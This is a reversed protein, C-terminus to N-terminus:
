AFLPASLNGLNACNPAPGDELPERSAPPPNQGRRRGSPRQRGEARRQGASRRLFYYRPFCGLTGALSASKHNLRYTWSKRSPSAPRPSEERKKQFAERVGSKRGPLPIAPANTCRYSTWADHNREQRFRRRVNSSRRESATKSALRM